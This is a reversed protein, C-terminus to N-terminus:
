ERTKLVAVLDLRDLRRRVVLASLVTALVITAGALAYTRGGIVLPLRYMETDYAAVLAASLGYGAVLGLPVAFVTVVVLEGLLVRAVEARTFGVVRLTALERNREGLSIRANNYVVGFAIVAAFAVFLVQMQNMMTAVTDLFSRMAARKNLVGSVRPTAKLRHYLADMRTRDVSLYAGSLTDGERMLNHLTELEMYANMGTYEAVLDVVPVDRTPRDGELVEVLVRDGRGVGLVQALKESLVLGGPALDVVRFSADVVRNLEAREQVGTIALVRSRPGARLRAPVVRFPEARVVGPLREVEDLARASTPEVFAVALDYRQAVNFQLDLMVDIADLSFNSVVLLSAGLAVGVVSLLVRGRHRQMSRLVSRAAPSLLPRLWAREVPSPRYRSPPEPRMAEAPPLRVARRVASLTGLAGAAVGIVVAAVLVRADLRYLLVPFQFFDTYLGTMARGLVAGAAVGLLSGAAAVVLSWKLYHAGISANGYGLAKLAAIQPRQVSVMRSLVVNLLFAAVGLFVVPVFLGSIRLGQLESELYWHSVQLARPLAGTGGYPRLVRDVAAIVDGEVAGRRLGLVVDNFGGEMQFAAALARREMWFVGFRENDPFLEGPRIQYIFEPSLALGVIRLERRRGNIIAGITDGPRLGHARAFLESALVEDRRSPDLYRGERLFLDCLAPRRDAPVSVLRGTGPDGMGPVDITVSAVVRAEVEAVGPIDALREAASLPARVASAFVDGFRYREYYTRLSLDLSDFTSFMSVLVAIGAAIVLGTAVVQGLTARLDRVLKRDLAPWPRGGTPRPRTVM